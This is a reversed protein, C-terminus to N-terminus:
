NDTISTPSLTSVMDMSSESESACDATCLSPDTYTVSLQNRETEDDTGFGHLRIGICSHRRSQFPLESSVPNVPAPFHSTTTRINPNPILIDSSYRVSVSCTPKRVLLTTGQLDCWALLGAM